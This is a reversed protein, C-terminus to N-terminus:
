SKDLITLIREMASSRSGKVLVVDGSSLEEKLFLACEQHDNFHIAKEVGESIAGKQIFDAGDGVSLINGVGFRSAKVGIDFHYREADDGLEAMFGLVVYKNGACRMESLCEMAAIVSDPNANYTDDVFTVGEIERLELRGSSLNASNLGKKIDEMKMGERLGVAVAMLSNIVMHKGPFPLYVETNCGEVSLNYTTSFGDYKIVDARVDGCGIGVTISEASTQDAIFGCYDDDANLIVYGKEPLNLVLGAKEKAINDRSGLNEIHAIGINTIIGIDPKAIDALAAIEGSGSMGMEWVGFENNEEINLLTLPVGIHNNYNGETATVSYSQNLISRLIDKTSTKGNSGTVGIGTVELSSRYSRALDQLGVLTDEVKILPLNSELGVKTEKNVMAASAGSALAENVYDHGDFNDGELAVFLSGKKLKRSDTSVSDIIIKKVNEDVKGKSYKSVESLSLSKM